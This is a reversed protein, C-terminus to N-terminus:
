LDRFFHGGSESHGHRLEGDWYREWDIYSFFPNDSEISGTELAWEEAFKAPSDYYGIYAERFKEVTVDKIDGSQMDNVYIMFAEIEDDDNLDGLKEELDAIESMSIYEGILGSPFGEHDHIAYEESAPLKGEGKCRSCAVAASEDSLEVSGEGECDPCDIMVNPFKSTLFVKDRIENSLDDADMGETEIWTGHLVGNNYSALCAVYVRRTTTSM